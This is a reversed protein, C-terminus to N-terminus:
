RDLRYVYIRDIAIRQKRPWLRFEYKLTRKVELPVAIENWEGIKVQDPTPRLPDVTRGKQCVDLFCVHTDEVDERLPQFRYVILYSGPSLATYPGGMLIKRSSGVLVETSYAGALPERSGGRSTMPPKAAEFVKVLTLEKADGLLSEDSSLVGTLIRGAESVQQENHFPLGLVDVPIAGERKGCSGLVISSALLTAFNIKM